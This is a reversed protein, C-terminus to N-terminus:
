RNNPEIRNISSLPSNIGIRYLMSAHMHDTVLSQLKSIQTKGIALKYQKCGDKGTRDVRVTTKVGLATISEALRVCDSHSFANTYIFVCGENRSYSGDGILLHALVIPTILEMIATPVIKTFVGPASSIYFIEHLENFVSLSVTKLRYQGSVLIRVPTNCFVSILSYVWSAYLMYPAGFSWELRTNSTSSSKTACCDGLLQGILIQKIFISLAENRTSVTELSPTARLNRWLTTTFTM